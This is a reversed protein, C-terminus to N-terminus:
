PGRASPPTKTQYRATLAADDVGKACDAALRLGDSGLGHFREDGAGATLHLIPLGRAKVREVFERQSRFPIVRDEPDSLLIVRRGPQHQMAKVHDIPDYSSVVKANLPKGMDRTHGKVSVTGSTIVACGLDGRRQLLAAVTHGGGSQGVAHLRKFGHLEKLADIAADVVRVEISTRRDRLHHGSSGLAGPRGLAIYPGGYVRSWLHADRQLSAATLRKSGADLGIKGDVVGGIDGHVYLLAEDKRGGATSMWYRVCFGRGDVRLWLATGLAKCRREDIAVGLTLTDATHLPPEAVDPPTEPKKNEYSTAITQTVVGKACAAAIHRAERWLAHSASDSAAVFLQQVPVGADSLRRVYLTQSRASIVVDDPDTLVFIRLEPRKAIKDTLALPDVADKRDTVDQRLGLDALWTRLSLLASALVVCGLDDRRALLSAAVHGGHGFGVLHLRKYGHVAKVADLAASVLAIERPTRRKAHEGSSGSVGPRALHIYPMHLARSWSASGNQVAAPSLKLHAESPRSEGRRNTSVADNDFYV